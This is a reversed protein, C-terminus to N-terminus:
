KKEPNRMRKTIMRTNRSLMNDLREREDSTLKGDKALQAHKAKIRNLDDRVEKAEDKTLEGSAVGAEIWKQHQEFRMQYYIDRMAQIPNAKKNDIMKGNHDLLISLWEVDKPSLSGDAKLRTERNKIYKLNNQLTTAEAQTFLKSKLGLDIKKQQVEIKQDITAPAAPAAAPPSPVGPASPVSPLSPLTPKPIEPPAVASVFTVSSGMLLIVLAGMSFRLMKKM